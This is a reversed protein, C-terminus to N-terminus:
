LNWIHLRQSGMKKERTGGRRRAELATAGEMGRVGRISNMTAALAGAPYETRSSHAVLDKSNLHCGLGGPPPIVSVNKAQFQETMYKIFNPGQSINDED